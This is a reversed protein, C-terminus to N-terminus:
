QFEDLQHYPTVFIAACDLNKIGKLVPVALFYPRENLVDLLEKRRIRKVGGPSTELFIKTDDCLHLSAELTGPQLLGSKCLSHQASGSIKCTVVVVWRDPACHEHSRTIELPDDKPTVQLPGSGGRHDPEMDLYNQLLMYPM